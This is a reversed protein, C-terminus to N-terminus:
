FKKIFLCIFVLILIIYINHKLTYYLSILGTYPHWTSDHQHYIITKSTPSCERDQGACPEFYESPIIDYLEPNMKDLIANFYAPGTTDQIRDMESLSPTWKSSAIIQAAINDCIYKCGPDYPRPSIITANNAVRTVPAKRILSSELANTPLLCVSLKSIKIKDFFADLPLLPKIDMDLSIGGYVYIIVYRGLDIKQHMITCADYAELYGAKRCLERLSKDDWCIHNWTPNLAELKYISERYKQPINEIGQFWIQHILNSQM